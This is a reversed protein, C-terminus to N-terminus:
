ILLLHHKKRLYNSINKQVLPSSSIKENLLDNLMDFYQNAIKERISKLKM